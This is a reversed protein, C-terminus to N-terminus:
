TCPHTSINLTVWEKVLRKRRKLSQEDIISNPLRNLLSVAQYHFSEFKLNIRCRPTVHRENNRKNSHNKVILELLFKPKGYKLANIAIRITHAATMQHVSLTKSLKLLTVTRMEWNIKLDPFQMGVAIRQCSQLKRMVSKPCSLKMLEQEGYKTLGWITGTVHLCYLLKSTFIAPIIMKLKHKSSYRSLYRLMGLRKLLEPIVGTVNDKERWKEGWYHAYWTMDKSIIVGLLKESPTPKLYQGSLTITMNMVHSRAMRLQRTAMILLKSKAPSIVMQNQLLWKSINDARAQVVDTFDNNDDNAVQDTTDDVYAVTHGETNPEENVAPLDNEYIM